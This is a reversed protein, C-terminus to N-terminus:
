LRQEATAIVKPTKLEVPITTFKQKLAPWLLDYYAQAKLLTVGTAPVTYDITRTEHPKLRTDEGLKKALPPPVPKDQDDLLTLILVSKPDEQLPQEQFNHWVPRGEANYATLKVYLTRFPAGTPMKHPLTNVLTVRAELTDQQPQVTLTLMLARELMAQSHGGGMTHDAYGKNIPMHCQQCNFHQSAKFEEGTACLPVGHMNNRQEHCGLCSDATRLLTANSEMPYPHYTPTAIDVGAPMTPSPTQTFLKGSPGQLVSGMEYADIGLNMKNNPGKVGKFTKFLHCNICSVGENYVPNADLQTVKDLAANPAHCKLCVPYKGSKLTVGEKRPDGAVNRYFVEHIPDSLATSHAHISSKWQQYIEEHCEKCVEASLHHPQSHWPYQAKDTPKPGGPPTQTEAVSYGTLFLLYVLCIAHAIRLLM